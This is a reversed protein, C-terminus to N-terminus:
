KTGGGRAAPAVDLRPEAVISYAYSVSETNPGGAVRTAASGWGWVSATIPSKSHLTHAGNGCSGQMEYNGRSLDIRAFEFREGVRQWGEIKPMCDLAVDHFVGASAARVLVVNTEPYSPDSFFAAREGYRSTPVLGVFEPDGRCDDDTGYVRCSEMIAAAYFPHSADQSRVVFPQSSRFQAIQGAGLSTPAGPPPAPEYELVTGGVLGVLHWPTQEDKEDFRNRHRVAVYENGLHARPPIQSFLPDCAAVGSHACPSGAFLGFPRSGEIPSGTLSFQGPQALQVFEGAAPRLTLKQGAPTSGLVAGGGQIPAVPMMTLETSSDGAILQLLPGDGQPLNAEIALAATDWSHTPFLATAAGIGTTGGGFPYIAHATIPSSSRVHFGKGIGPGHVAVDAVLGAGEIEAPCAGPASPGGDAVFGIALEGPPIEPAALREYRIDRGSGRPLRLVRSVDVGIQDYEIAVKAPTTAPNFLLLAFCASRFSTTDPVPTSFSCGAMSGHRAAAACPAICAGAHCRLPEDCTTAPADGVCTARLDLTCGDRCVLPEDRGLPPASSGGDEVDSDACAPGLMVLCFLGLRLPKM